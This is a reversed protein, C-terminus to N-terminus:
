NQGSEAVEGPAPRPWPILFPFFAGRRRPGADPFRGSRSAQRLVAAVWSSFLSAPRLAAAVWSLSRSAPRLVAAVWSSSRSAPRLVAAVWSSSRSAPRLAAAVWSSSRSAAAGRLPLCLTLRSTVTTRLSVRGTPPTVVARLSLRRSAAPSRPRGSCPLVAAPCARGVQPAM